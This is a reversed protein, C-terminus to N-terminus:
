GGIFLPSLQPDVPFLLFAFLREFMALSLHFIYLHDDALWAGLNWGGGQMFEAEISKRRQM